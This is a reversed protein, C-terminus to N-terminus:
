INDCYWLVCVTRIWLCYATCGQRGRFKSSFDASCLLGQFAFFFQKPVNDEFRTLAQSSPVLIFWNYQSLINLQRIIWAQSIYCSSCCALDVWISLKYYQLYRLFFCGCMRVSYVMSGCETRSFLLNSVNTSAFEKCLGLSYSHNRGQASSGRKSVFRSWRSGWLLEFLASHGLPVWHCTDSQRCFPGEHFLVYYLKGIFYRGTVADVNLDFPQVHCVPRYEHHHRRFESLSARPVELLLPTIAAFRMKCFLDAALMHFTLFIWFCDNLEFRFAKDQFSPWWTLVGSTVM